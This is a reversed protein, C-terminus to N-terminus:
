LMYEFKDKHLTMNNNDSWLIVKDLDNQLISVDKECCIPKSVRTDDAFSRIMSKAICLDIDNIFILFLIPGLVTGQPVGSIILWLPLSHYTAMLLSM